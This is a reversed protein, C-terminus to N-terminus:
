SRGSPRQRVMAPFGEDAAASALAAVARRMHKEVATRSIGLREAIERQGLGEQRRWLLIQRTRAPLAALAVDMRALAEEGLVRDEPTEEDTVRWLVALTESRLRARVAQKQLHNALLGAAAHFAFARLNRPTAAHAPRQALKLWLDQVLDEAQAFDGLRRALYRVLEPRLGAWADATPAPAYDDTASM